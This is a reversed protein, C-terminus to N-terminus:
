LRGVPNMRWRYIQDLSLSYSGELPSYWSDQSESLPAAPDALDAWEVIEFGVSRLANLCEDYTHLKSIGNGEEIGNIIKKHALNSEDYSPMTLWEYCAFYAGPKLVRFIEGYPKELQKAHCTAEIAYAADFTGSEIPMQEFNGKIAHCISDLKHTRALHNARDAQYQNNNLGVVTAGSFKAIERQPGGVGCGVDLCKMGPKLSLKLALYDEHRSICQAFTSDKFMQAFHFSCGWGYEYFDTALNYYHNTLTDSQARRDRVATANNALNSHDKEWFKSYADVTDKHSNSDTAKKRLRMLFSSLEPDQMPQVM